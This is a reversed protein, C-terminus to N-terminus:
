RVGLRSDIARLVRNREILESISHKESYWHVLAFLVIAGVQAALSADLAITLGLAAGLSNSGADGMMARGRSDVIGWAFAVIATAGVIWPAALGGRALICTVGLGLLFVAVARGPRLDVLNLVNAALPILLAATIWRAPDGNSIVWGALVGVIGGGIAKLAGTTLKRERILKMFHGRFGGVERSGFLDDILGLIWMACM